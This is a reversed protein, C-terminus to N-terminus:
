LNAYFYRVNKLWNANLKSHELPAYRDRLFELYEKKMGSDQWRKVNNKITNICIKRCYAENDWDCGKYMIGYPVSAKKGGEARYIADALREIDVVEAAIGQTSIMMLLMSYITVKLIM